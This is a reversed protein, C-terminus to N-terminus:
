VVVAILMYLSVNKYTCSPLASPEIMWFAIILNNSYSNSSFFTKEKLSNFGSVPKKVKRQRNKLFGCFFGLRKWFFILHLANQCCRLATKATVERQNFGIEKQLFCHRGLKILGHSNCYGWILRFGPCCLEILKGRSSTFWKCIQHAYFLALRKLRHFHSKMDVVCSTM